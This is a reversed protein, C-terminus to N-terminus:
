LTCGTYLLVWMKLPPATLFWSLGLPVDANISGTAESEAPALSVSRPNPNLTKPRSESISIAPSTTWSRFLPLLFPLQYEPLPLSLLLPLSLKLNGLVSLRTISSLTKSRVSIMYTVGLHAMERAKAEAKGMNCPYSHTKLDRRSRLNELHTKGVDGSHETSM